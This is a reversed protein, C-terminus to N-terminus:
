FYIIMIFYIKKIPLLTFRNALHIFIVNKINNIKILELGKMIKRENRKFTQGGHATPLYRLCFFLLRWTRAQWLYLPYKRRWQVSKYQGCFLYEIYRVLYDVFEANQLIFRKFLTNAFQIYLAKYRWCFLLNCWKLPHRTRCIFNCNGLYLPARM